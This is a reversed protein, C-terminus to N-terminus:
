SSKKPSSRPRKLQELLAFEFDGEQIDNASVIRLAHKGLPLDYNHLKM